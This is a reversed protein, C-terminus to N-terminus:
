YRPVRVGCGGLIQTGRATQPKESEQPPAPASVKRPFRFHTRTGRYQAAIKALYEGEVKQCNAACFSWMEAVFINSKQSSVAPAAPNARIERKPETTKDVFRVAVLPARPPKADPFANWRIVFFIFARPQPTNKSVKKIFEAPLPAM